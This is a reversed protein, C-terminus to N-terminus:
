LPNRVWTGSRVRGSTYNNLRQPNTARMVLTCALTVFRTTDTRSLSELRDCGSAALPMSHRCGVRWFWCHHQLNASDASGSPEAPRCWCKSEIWKAKGPLEFLRLLRADALYCCLEGRTHAATIWNTIESIWKSIELHNLSIELYNWIDNIRSYINFRGGMRACLFDTTLPWIFSRLNQCSYLSSLRDM